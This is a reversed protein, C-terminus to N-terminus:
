TGTHIIFNIGLFPHMLSLPNSGANGATATQGTVSVGTTLSGASAIQLDGSRGTTKSITAGTIYLRETGSVAVGDNNDSVRVTTTTVGGTGTTLGTAAHFHSALENTTIIHSEAGGTSAIARSTGLGGGEATNGQGVGIPSRGRFDPLNFTTTGNGAGYTVGIVNFLNAYTTRSVASGDCFLWASPATTTTWMRVEGIISTSATPATLTSGVIVLGTGANLPAINGLGLNTRAIPVNDVDSLNNSSLLGVLSQYQTGNTYMWGKQGTKYVVGGSAGAPKVTVTFAGSWAGDILYIKEVAPVILNINAGITGVLKLVMHRATDSSGNNVTTAINVDSNGTIDVSVVGAISEDILELCENLVQGWTNPNDNDGQKNYRLNPTYTSVM